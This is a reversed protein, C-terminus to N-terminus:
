VIKKFVETFNQFYGVQFMIQAYKYSYINHLDNIAIYLHISLNFFIIIFANVM